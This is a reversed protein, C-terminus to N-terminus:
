LNGLWLLAVQALVPVQETEAILARYEASKMHARIEEASWSWRTGLGEGARLYSRAAPLRRPTGEVKTLTEVAHVPLTATARDLYQELRQQPEAVPPLPALMLAISVVVNFRKAM